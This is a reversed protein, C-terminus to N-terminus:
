KQQLAEAIKELLEKISFPKQLFYFGEDAGKTKSFADAAYGSTLLCRSNRCLPLIKEALEPGNMEPMVVDTLLLDIEGAHKEALSIAESPTGATLVTYGAGELITKNLALLALEDEVALVTGHARRGPKQPAEAPSEKAGGTHRPLFVRFTSGQGPESEVSIFGNNQKVIGYVTALGLGTGKGREKTTFFPEFVRQRVNQGMGCGNDSVAFFVYDGPVCGVHKDCYLPDLSINGTEITIKGAGADAIADRANVCLNVLIQDMQSPDVHIPWLTAAPLFSLHINEGILPSLMSLMGAISANLDVVEPSITQKRAFALLQKTLKASREAAKQIGELHAYLPHAPDAKRMALEAHGLIVGLMNNFDHAVGGALRGIAEMKHAQRRQEELRGRESVDRIILSDTQQGDPAVSQSVTVEAPFTDGNARLMTFEARVEGRIAQGSLAARLRPDAADVLSHFGIRRIDELPRGSMACAAPNADLIAGDPQTLLIADQADNFFRRTKDEYEQRVAQDQSRQRSAQAEKLERDIAFVLRSLNGKEVYDRAGAKVCDVAQEGGIPESVIILPIDLAMEKLLDIAARGHFGSLRYDCVVIDWSQRCLAARMAEATDVRACQTDWGGTKLAETARYIDEPSEEVMLVKLPKGM